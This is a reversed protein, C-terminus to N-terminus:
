INFDIGVLSALYMAKVFLPALLVRVVGAGWSVQSNKLRSMALTVLGWGLFGWGVLRLFQETFNRLVAGSDNVASPFLGGGHGDAFWTDIATDMTISLSAMAGSVLIVVCGGLWGIPQENVYLVAKLWSWLVYTVLCVAVFLLFMRMFLFLGPFNASVNVLLEIAQNNYMEVSTAM